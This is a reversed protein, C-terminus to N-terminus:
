NLQLRRLLFFDKGDQRVVGYGNLAAIHSLAEPCQMDIENTQHCWGKKTIRTVSAYM